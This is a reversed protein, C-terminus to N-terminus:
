GKSTVYEVIEFVKKIKNIAEGAEEVSGYIKGAMAMEAASYTEGSIRQMMEEMGKIEKFGEVGEVVEEAVM